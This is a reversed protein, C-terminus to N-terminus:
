CSGTSPEKLVVLLGNTSVKEEINALREMQSYTGVVVQVRETHIYKDVVYRDSSGSSKTGYMHVVPVQQTGNRGRGWPFVIM